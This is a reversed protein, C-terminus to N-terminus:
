RGLGKRLIRVEWFLSIISGVVQVINRPRFAKSSGSGRQDLHVGVERYSYGRKLLRVLTKAVYAFGNTDMPIEQLARSRFACTGNYYRVKLGCLINVTWVYIRSIARRTRTRVWPNVVYPIILDAEGLKEVVPTVSQASNENDGPIMMLYDKSTLKVGRGFNYGLGMNMSNHVVLIRPDQSALEEAIAGTRDSSHDNVIIIELSDVLGSTADSVSRVTAALNREENLAPIVVTLSPRLPPRTKSHAM